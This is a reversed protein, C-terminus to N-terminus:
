LLRGSFSLMAWIYVSIYKLLRYNLWHMTNVPVRWGYLSRHIMVASEPPNKKLVQHETVPTWRTLLQVYTCDSIVFHTLINTYTEKAVTIPSIEVDYILNIASRWTPIILGWTLDIYAQPSFMSTQTFIPHKLWLKSPNLHKAKNKECIYTNYTSMPFTNQHKHRISIIFTYQLMNENTKNFMNQHLHASCLQLDLM